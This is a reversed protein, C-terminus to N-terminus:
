STPVFQGLIWVTPYSPTTGGVVWKVRWATGIDGARVTAAALAADSGATISATPANAASTGCGDFVRCVQTGPGATVQTFHIYDDWITFSSAQADLGATLDTSALAKFGQQIYIDLTPLTGTATGVNLYLTVANYGEPIGIMGSNGNASITQSPLIVINRSNQQM